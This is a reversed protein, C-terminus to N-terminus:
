CLNGLKDVLSVNKMDYVETWVCLFIHTVQMYLIWWTRPVRGQRGRPNLSGQNRSVEFSNPSSEALICGNESEFNHRVELLAAPHIIVISRVWRSPYEGSQVISCFLVKRRVNVSERHQLVGKVSGFIVTCKVRGHTTWDKLFSRDLGHPAKNERYVAIPVWSDKHWGARPRSLEKGTSLAYTEKTTSFGRVYCTESRHACICIGVGYDTM